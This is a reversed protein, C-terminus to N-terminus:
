CSQCKKYRSCFKSTNISRRWKYYFYILMVTRKFVCCSTCFVVFFSSSCNILSLIVCPLLILLIAGLLIICTNLTLSHIVIIFLKSVMHTANLFIIKDDVLNPIHIFNKDWYMSEDRFEVVFCCLINENKTNWKIYQRDKDINQFM